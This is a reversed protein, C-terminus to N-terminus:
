TPLLVRTAVLYGQEVKDVIIAVAPYIPQM